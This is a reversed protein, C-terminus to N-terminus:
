SGTEDIKLDGERLKSHLVSYFSRGSLKIFQASCSAKGIVVEDGPELRYAHQGDMTLMIEANDSLVTIKLQRSAPMVMPRSWLTHPCIPTLIMLNMDPIVVPGGSSLSYATSGTPSSVILGDVPYVAVTQGDVEAKLRIMRSFAGKTIVADNLAISNDVIRGQRVVSSALMMRKELTYEDNVLKHLSSELEPIDVESLFGVRGLNVGLLPVQPATRATNLVTGDGGLVIIGQCSKKIEAWSAALDSRGALVATETELMLEAKKLELNSIIRPLLELAAKKDKNAVLGIVQM